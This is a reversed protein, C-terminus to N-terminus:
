LMTLLITNITNLCKFVQRNTYLCKFVQRNTYLCNCLYENMRRYEMIVYIRM